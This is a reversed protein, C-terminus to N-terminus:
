EKVLEELRAKAGESGQAAAKQYWIGAEVLDEPVGIGKEYMQGLVYQAGSFDQDASMRIWKLGEAVNEEVGTGNVYLTGLANQAMANGQQASKTLWIAAKMENKNVGTGELYARGLAAQAAAHEQDAAQRLWALGETYDDDDLYTMGLKYQADSDGLEAEERYVELVGWPTVTHSGSHRITTSTGDSRTITTTIMSDDNEGPDALFLAVIFFVGVLAVAVLVVKGFVVLIRKV